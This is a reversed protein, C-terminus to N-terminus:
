LFLFHVTSLLSISKKQIWRNKLRKSLEFQQQRTLQILRFSFSDNSELLLFSEHFYVFSIKKRNWPFFLLPLIKYIFWVHAKILYIDFLM